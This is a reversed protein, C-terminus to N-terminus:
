TEARGSDFAAAGAVLRLVRRSRDRRSWRAASSRSRSLGDGGTALVEGYATRCVGLGAPQDHTILPRTGLGAEPLQLTRHASDCSM